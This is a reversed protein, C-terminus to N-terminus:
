DEAREQPENSIPFEAITVMRVLEALSGAEMQQLLRARRLEVTRLGIGLDAAIKKNPKGHLLGRLVDVAGTTLGALRQRIQRIEQSHERHEREHRLAADITSLLEKDEHPKQILTFAGKLMANVATPVDAHATVITVPLAVDRVKLEDLLDLGSVGDFRLESIICGSTLSEVESLLPKPSSYSKTQWGRSLALQSISDRAAADGDVIFVTQPDM